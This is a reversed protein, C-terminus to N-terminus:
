KKRLRSDIFNWLFVVQENKSYYSFAFYFILFMLLKAINYYWIDPFLFMTLIKVSLVSLLSIVALQFLNATIEKLMNLGLKKNVLYFGTICLLIYSVSTGIALGYQQYTDVLAFNLTIKIILITVSLVLLPRVLNASFILKNVISYITYFVLSLSYIKLVNATALVNSTNFEGREYIIKIVTDGWFFYITALPLFFFVLMKLASSFQYKLRESNKENFSKTLNPFMVLSVANSLITMPTIILIMAFNLSSIGGKDIYNVFYRDVFMYLQGVIEILLIIFIARFLPKQSLLGSIRKFPNFNFERVALSVVLIFQFLYGLVFGAPISYIGLTPSFFYVVIIIPINLLFQVISPMSYRLESVLYSNLLSIGFNLPLAVSLISFVVAATQKAEETKDWMYYGIITDRFLVFAVAILVGTFIFYRFTKVVFAKRQEIDSESIQHYNPIFYNQAFYYLSQSVILPITAGVLYLDFNESVGFTGAFLVVRLFGLGRGTFNLATVIIASLVLSTKVKRSM